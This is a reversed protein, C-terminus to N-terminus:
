KKLDKRLFVKLAEYNYRLPKIQKEVEKKLDKRVSDESAQGTKEMVFAIVAEILTRVKEILADPHRKMKLVREGGARSKEKKGLM